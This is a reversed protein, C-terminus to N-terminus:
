AELCKIEVCKKEQHRTAGIVMSSYIQYPISSLDPRPRIDTKIDQWVGIHMGSKVWVPVRRYPTADNPLLESHVFKFGMFRTIQGDELIPKEQFDFSVAQAQALMDDFQIANLGAYSVERELNVENALLIKRAARLKPVNLGVPTANNASGVGVAVQQSGPFAVVNAPANGTNSVNGTQANGFFNVLFVNDMERNLASAFDTAIYSQPDIVMKLKDFNDVLDMVDITVPYVWRRDAPTDTPQLAQARGTRITAKTVGVQEVSVAGSGEHSRVDCCMRFRSDEQQVLFEVNNNFQTIFYTPVQNM